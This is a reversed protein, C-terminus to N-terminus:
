DLFLLELLDNDKKGATGEKKEDGWGVSERETNGLTSVPSPNLHRHAPTQGAPCSFVSPSLSAAGSAGRAAVSGEQGEEAEQCWAGGKVRVGGPLAGRRIARVGQCTLFVCKFTCLTRPRECMCLYIQPQM